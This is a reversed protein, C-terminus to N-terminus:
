LVGRRELHRAGYGSVFCVILFPVPSESLTALAGLVTFVSILYGARRLRLRPDCLVWSRAARKLGWWVPVGFVVALLFAYAIAWPLGVQVALEDEVTV